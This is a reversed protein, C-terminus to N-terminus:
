NSRTKRRGRPRMVQGSRVLINRITGPSVNYHKAITRIDVGSKYSDVVYPEEKCLKVIRPM